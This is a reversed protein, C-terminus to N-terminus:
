LIPKMKIISNRTHVMRNFNAFNCYNIKSGNALSPDSLNSITKTTRNSANSKVIKLQLELLTESSAETASVMTHGM